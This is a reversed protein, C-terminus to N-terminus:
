TTPFIGANQEGAEGFCAARAKNSKESLCEPDKKTQGARRPATM